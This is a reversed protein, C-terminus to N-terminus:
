FIRPKLVSSKPYDDFPNIYKENSINQRLASIPV